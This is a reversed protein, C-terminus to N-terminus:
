QVECDELRPHDLFNKGVLTCVAQIPAQRVLNEVKTCGTYFVVRSQWFEGKTNKAVVVLCEGLSSDVDGVTGVILLKRGQHTAAYRDFAISTNNAEFAEWEESFAWYNLFAPSIPAPAVTPAVRRPVDLQKPTAPEDQVASPPDFRPVEVFPTSPLAQDPTDKVALYVGILLIAPTLLWILANAHKM